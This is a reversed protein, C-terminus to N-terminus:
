LSEGILLHYVPSRLNNQLRSLRTELTNDYQLHGDATELSIGIRDVLPEGVTLHVNFQKATEALVQNTLSTMTKKDARVVVNDTKLQTLAERLLRQCIQSYDTWLQISSLQERVSSFVSDLLKERHELEMTRAKMQTTAVTQGRLRTAELQAREIIEAREAMAQEQARQLIADAKARADALILEAEASAESLVARSLSEINEALSRM